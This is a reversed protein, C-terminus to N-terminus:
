PARLMRSDRTFVSPRSHKTSLSFIQTTDTTCLTSWMVVCCTRNTISGHYTNCSCSVTKIKGWQHCLEAKFQM